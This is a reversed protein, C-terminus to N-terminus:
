GNPREKLVTPIEDTQMGKVKERAVKEESTNFMPSDNLCDGNSLEKLKSLRKGTRQKPKSQKKDREKVFLM